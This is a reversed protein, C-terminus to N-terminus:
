GAREEVGAHPASDAHRYQGPNAGTWKKFARHFASTESFGVRAAVESVSLSQNGLFAIAMDRRLEDKVAQFAHGEEDLRRRLTSPSLGMDCALQDFDPWEAPTLERIRRRIRAVISESNKYKVLFNAPAERLFQKMAPETQLAPLDLFSADFTLATTQCGFQIKTSFLVRYEEMEAPEPARFYASRIPIRRKVLWCSLGHLILLFTGYAFLRQPQGADLVVIRALDGDRELKGCFDDLILSFFRLMRPLGKGLTGCHLVSHCLLTFSGCKMGHSDMGFFEDNTEQAIARWLAGYSTATIRANELALLDPSIGAQHLMAEVDYGRARVNVLAERVFHISITGRPIEPLPPDTVLIKM